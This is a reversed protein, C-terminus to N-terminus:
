GVIETELQWLAWEAQLSLRSAFLHLLFCRVPFIAELYLSTTEPKLGSGNQMSQAGEGHGM